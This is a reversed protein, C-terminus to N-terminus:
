TAAPDRANESNEWGGRNQNRGRVAEPCYAVKRRSTQEPRSCGRSLLTTGELRPRRYHMTMSAARLMSMQKPRSCGSSSLTTDEIRPQRYHMAMNVARLMSM